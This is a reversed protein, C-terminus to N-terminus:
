PRVGREVVSGPADPGYLRTMAIRAAIFGPAAGVYILPQGGAVMFLLGAAILARCLFSGFLFRGPHTCSPLQRVTWWLGGFYGAGALIGVAAGMFIDGAFM